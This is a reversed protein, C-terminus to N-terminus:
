RIFVTHSQLEKERQKNKRGFDFKGVTNKIHMLGVAVQYVTIHEVFQLDSGDRERNM